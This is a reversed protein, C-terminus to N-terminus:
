KLKGKYIPNRVLFKIEKLAKKRITPNNVTIYFDNKYRTMNTWNEGPAKIKMLYGNSNLNFILKNGNEYVTKVNKLSFSANFKVNFYTKGKVTFSNKTHITQFYIEKTEGDFKFGGKSSTVRRSGFSSEQKRLNRFAENQRDSISFSKLKNSNLYTTYNGFGNNSPVTAKKFDYQEGRITKPEDGSWKYKGDTSFAYYYYIRNKTKGIIGEEKPKFNYYGKSEWVGELNKYRIAVQIKRDSNNKFVLKYFEDEISDFQSNVDKHKIPKGNKFIVKYKGESTFFERLYKNRKYDINFYWEGDRNNNNTYKGKEQLDGNEYYKEYDGIDFGTDEDTTKKEWLQGNSYYDWYNWIGIPEYSSGGFGGGGKIEGYNGKKTLSGNPLYEEAWGVKYGNVFTTSSKLTKDKYYEKWVGDQEDNKYFGVSKINNEFFIWQGNREDDSYYGIVAPLGDEDYQEFRGEFKDNLYNAITNIKGNSHYASWESTRKDGWYYGVSRLNENDYYTKKLTLEDNCNLLKRVNAIENRISETSLPKSYELNTDKTIFGTFKQFYNEKSKGLKIQQQEISLKKFNINISDIIKQTQIIKVDAQNAGLIRRVIYRECNETNFNKSNKFELLLKYSLDNNFKIAEYSYAASSYNDYINVLNQLESKSKIIKSTGVNACLDISGQVANEAEYALKEFSKLIKKLDEVYRKEEKSYEKIRTKHKQKWVNYEKILLKQNSCKYFYKNALEFIETQSKSFDSSMKTYIEYQKSENYLKNQSNVSNSVLSLILFIISSNFSILKINM